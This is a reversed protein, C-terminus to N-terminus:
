SLKGKVRKVFCEGLDCVELDRFHSKVSVMDTDVKLTM